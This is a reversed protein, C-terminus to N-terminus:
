ISFAEMQQLQKKTFAGFPAPAISQVSSEFLFLFAESYDSAKKM